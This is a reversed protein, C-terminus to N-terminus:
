GPGYSPQPTPQMRAERVVDCPSLAVLTEFPVRLGFAGANEGSAENGGTITGGARDAEADEAGAGVADVDDDDAADDDEAEVDTEETWDAHDEGFTLM